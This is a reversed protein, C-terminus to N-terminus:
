PRELRQARSPQTRRWLLRALWAYFATYTLAYVAAKVIAKTLIARAQAPTSRLAVPIDLLYIVSIALLSVAVLLAVGAVVQASRRHGEGIAGAAVLALGVTGLPMGNLHASITGFEWQPNGLQPPYWLLALDTWGVVAIAVGTWLIVKSAAPPEWARRRAREEDAVLLDTV